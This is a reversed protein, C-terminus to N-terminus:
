SNSLDEKQPGATTGLYNNRGVLQLYLTRGERRTLKDKLVPSFHLIFLYIGTKPGSLRSDESFSWESTSQAQEVHVAQSSSAIRHSTHKGIRVEGCQEFEVSCCWSLRQNSSHLHKELVTPNMWNRSPALRECILWCAIFLALAKELEAPASSLDPQSRRRSSSGSLALGFQCTSIHDLLM